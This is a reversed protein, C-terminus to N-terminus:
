QPIIPIDVLPPVLFYVDRTDLQTVNDGWVEVTAMFVQPERTPEITVNQKPVLRWCVPTGAIVQVFLDPYGDSNSDQDTLGATCEPTGLQLTELGVRLGALLFSAVAIYLPNLQALWAVVIATYGYGAMISPQLRNLNASAELFGAWGSLMGGLVPAALPRM